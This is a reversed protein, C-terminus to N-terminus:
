EFAPGQTTLRYSTCEPMPELYKPHLQMAFGPEAELPQVKVTVEKLANFSWGVIEGVGNIKGHQNYMQVLQGKQTDSLKM